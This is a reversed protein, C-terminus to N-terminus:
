KNIYTDDNVFNQQYLKSESHLFLESNVFYYKCINLNASYKYDSEKLFGINILFSLLENYRINWAKLLVYPLPYLGEKRNKRYYPYLYDFIAVQNNHKLVDDQYDSWSLIKNVFRKLTNCKRKIDRPRTKSNAEKRLKLEYLLTINASIIKNFLSETIPKRKPTFNQNKKYESKIRSYLLKPKRLDGTYQPSQELCFLFRAYIESQNLGNCRYTCCLKLFAENTNGNVFPLLDNEIAEIKQLGKIKKLAKKKAKLNNKIADPLISNDFLEAPHYRNINKCYKEFPKNLLQFTEPCIALSESPIRLSNNQNPKIEIPLHKLRRKAIDIIIDTPVRQNFFYYAHLGRPSKFLLSPNLKLENLIQGYLNLLYADGLNKHNDIDICIFYTTNTIFYSVLQKGLIAKLILENNLFSNSEYWINEKFLPSYHKIKYKKRYPNFQKIFTSAKDTM